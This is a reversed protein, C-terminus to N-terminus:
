AGTLLFDLKGDNDYDGWSVSSYAVSQLGPAVSATVNTFGSPTNRWVQSIPGSAGLGTLLFDLRGDHDYDAWAVSGVYVGPLGPAVTGTVNSFGSGTNRWIQSIFIGLGSSDWGTQGTLLFDPRGDNDYDGWAVSSGGVGPVGPAVIATMD